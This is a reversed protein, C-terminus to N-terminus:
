INMTTIVYTIIATIAVIIYAALLAVFYVRWIKKMLKPVEIEKETRWDVFTFILAVVIAVIIVIIYASYDWARQVIYPVSLFLLLTTIDASFGIVYEQKMRLKKLVFYSIFLIVFPCFLTVLTVYDFIQTMM